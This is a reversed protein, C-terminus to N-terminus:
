EGTVRGKVVEVAFIGDEWFVRRLSEDKGGLLTIGKSVPHLIAQKKLCPTAGNVVATFRIHPQGHM